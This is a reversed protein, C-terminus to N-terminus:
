NIVSGFNVSSQLRSSGSAAAYEALHVPSQACQMHQEVFLHVTQLHILLLLPNLNPSNTSKVLEGFRFGRPMDYSPHLACFCKQFYWGFLFNCPLLYPVTEAPLIFLVTRVDSGSCSAWSISVFGRLANLPWDLDGFMTGNWTLYKEEQAITVTKLVHQEESIRSWLINHGQFGPWLDSLTM